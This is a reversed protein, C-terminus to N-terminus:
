SIEDVISNETEGRKLSQELMALQKPEKALQKRAFKTFEKSKYRKAVKIALHEKEQFNPAFNNDLPVADLPQWDFEEVLQYDNLARKCLRQKVSSELEGLNKKPPKNVSNRHLLNSQGKRPDGYHDGDINQQDGGLKNKPDGDMNKIM